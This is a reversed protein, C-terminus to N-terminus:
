FNNVLIRPLNIIFIEIECQYKLKIILFWYENIAEKGRLYKQYMEFITTYIDKTVSKEVHGRLFRAVCRGSRCRSTARLIHLHRRLRARIKKELKTPQWPPPEGHTSALRHNILTQHIHILSLRGRSQRVYICTYERALM